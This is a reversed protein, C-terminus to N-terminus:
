PRDPAARLDKGSVWRVRKDEGRFRGFWEGDQRIWVDVEGSQWDTARDAAKPVKFRRVSDPNRPGHADYQIELDSAAQLAQEEDPLGRQRWGHVSGDWVGFTGSGDDAPQVRFRERM